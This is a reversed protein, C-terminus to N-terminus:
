LDGDSKSQMGFIKLTFKFLYSIVIAIAIVASGTVVLDSFTDPSKFIAEGTEQVQEHLQTSNGSPAESM